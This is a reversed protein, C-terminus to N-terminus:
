TRGESATLFPQKWLSKWTAHKWINVKEKSARQQGKIDEWAKSSLKSPRARVLKPTISVVRSSTKRLTDSSSCDRSFLSAPSVGGSRRWSSDGSSM